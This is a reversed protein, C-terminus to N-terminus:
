GRYQNYGYKYDRSDSGSRTRGRGDPSAFYKLIHDAAFSKDFQSFVYNYLDPLELAEGIKNKMIFDAVVSRDRDDAYLDLWKMASRKDVISNYSTEDLMYERITSRNIYNKAFDSRNFDDVPYKLYYFYLCIVVAKLFAKNKMADNLSHLAAERDLPEETEQEHKDNGFFGKVKDVFGETLLIEERILQRLQRKTIKM